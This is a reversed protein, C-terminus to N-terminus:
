GILDTMYDEGGSNYGGDYYDRTGDQERYDLQWYGGGSELHFLHASRDEKAFHPFGNWDEVRYYIGNYQESAHNSIEIYDTGEAVPADADIPNLDEDLFSHTFQV